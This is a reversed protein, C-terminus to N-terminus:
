MAIIMFAEKLMKDAKEYNALERHAGASMAIVMAYPVSGEGNTIKRGEAAKDYNKIAEDLENMDRQVTALNILTNVTNQHHEGYIYLYAEHVDQFMEKAESFRGDLKYLMGQNNIVSCHAPHQDPFYNEIDIKHDNL